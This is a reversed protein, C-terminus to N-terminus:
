GGWELMESQLVFFDSFIDAVSHMCCSSPDSSLLPITLSCFLFM